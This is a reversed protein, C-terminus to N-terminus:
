QGQPFGYQGMYESYWNHRSGFGAAILEFALAATKGERDKEPVLEVVDMGVVEFRKGIYNLLHSVERYTLGGSTAMPSAPAVSEDISDLDLSVWVKETKQRLEEAAKTIIGFGHELVDFMTVAAIKERRITDIEPQDLDKLGMYLFLETKVKTARQDALQADGFGLIAAVGMGHVNGSSSSQATHIDAHADIWIVGLNEGVTEAAGPITGISIAHDGGLALVKRGKRIEGSVITRTKDAVNSIETVRAERGKEKRIEAVSIEPLVEIEFGSQALSRTLGRQLLYEPAGATGAADSGIGM